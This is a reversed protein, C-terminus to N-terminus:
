FGIVRISTEENSDDEKDDDDEAPHVSCVIDPRVELQRELSTVDNHIIAETQEANVEATILLQEIAQESQESQEHQLSADSGMQALVQIVNSM